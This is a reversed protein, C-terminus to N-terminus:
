AGTRLSDRARPPPRGVAPGGRGARCPQPPHGRRGPSRRTARCHSGTTVQFLPVSIAPQGTTNFLATYGSRRFDEMPDASRSDIEGIREPREALAPTLVVDYSEWLAIIGRAIATLRTSALLYDLASRERIRERMASPTGFLSEQGGWPAAIEEVDHGLESLLAAAEPSAADASRISSSISPRRRPTASGSGAPRENRRPRAGTAKLPAWTADGVGYGSLIDLMAATEAVTRTLVGDQVLFDYAPAHPRSAFRAAGPQGHALPVMGAAVAAGRRPTRETSWPNRAPGFRRRESVPLIGLEPM